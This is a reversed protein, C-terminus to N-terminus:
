LLILTNGFLISFISTHSVKTKGLVTDYSNIKILVLIVLNTKAVTVYSITDTKITVTFCLHM